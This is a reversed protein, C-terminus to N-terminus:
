RSAGAYGRWPGFVPKCMHFGAIRQAARQSAKRRAKYQQQTENDARKPNHIDVMTM